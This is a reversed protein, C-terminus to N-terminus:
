AFKKWAAQLQDLIPLAADLSRKYSDYGTEYGSAGTAYGTTEEAGGLLNTVLPVLVLVLALVVLMVIVGEIISSQNVQLNVQNDEWNAYAFRSDAEEEPVAAGSAVAACLAIVLLLKM